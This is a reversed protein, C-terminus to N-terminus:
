EVAATHKLTFTHGEVFSFIKLCASATGAIMCAPTARRALQLVGDHGLAPRESKGAGGALGDGLGVSM